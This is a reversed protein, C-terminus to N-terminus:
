MPMGEFPSANGTRRSGTGRADTPQSQDKPDKPGEGPNPSYGAKTGQNVADEPYMEAPGTIENPDWGNLKSMIQLSRATNNARAM